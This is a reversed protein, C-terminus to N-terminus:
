VNAQQLFLVEEILKRDNSLRPVKHQGGVKGKSKLWNIFTDKPAKHIIPPRLSLDFARKADYDSNVKRLTTDLVECFFDLNAPENEFEIL